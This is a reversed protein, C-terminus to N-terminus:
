LESWDQLSMAVMAQTSAVVGTTEPKCVHTIMKALRAEETRQLNLFTFAVRYGMEIMDKAAQRFIRRVWTKPAGDGAIVRVIFASGHCPSALFLGVIFGGSICVWAWNKDLPLPELGHRFPIM